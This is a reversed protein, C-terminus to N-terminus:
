ILFIVDLDINSVNTKCCEPEQYQISYVNGKKFLLVVDQKYFYNKGTTQNSKSGRNSTAINLLLKYFVYIMNVILTFMCTANKEEVYM